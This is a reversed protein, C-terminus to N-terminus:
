HLQRRRSMTLSLGLALAMLGILAILPLATATKPLTRHHTRATPAPAQGAAAAASSAQGAPPAAEPAPAGTLTAQLQQETLVKPTGPTVIKATLRDGARFDTLSAPQGNRVIEVNRDAVDKESFMKIGSDTRVIISNGSAQVVEGNKIETVHVPIVRTTTTIVATGKMGPQLERVTVEKGDVTFRQSEPAVYERPGSPTNVFVKTGDVAIVEFTVSRQTTSTSQASAALSIGVLCAAAIFAPLWVEKIARM